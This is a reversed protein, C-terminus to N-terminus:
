SGRQFGGLDFKWPTLAGIKRVWGWWLQNEPKKNCWVRDKTIWSGFKLQMWQALDEPFKASKRSSNQISEVTLVNQSAIWWTEPGNKSPEMVKKRESVRNKCLFQALFGCNETRPVGFFAGFTGGGGWEDWQQCLNSSKPVNKPCMHGRSNGYDDDASTM